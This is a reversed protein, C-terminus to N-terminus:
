PTLTVLETNVAVDIVNVKRLPIGMPLEYFGSSQNV